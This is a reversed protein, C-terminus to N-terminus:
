KKLKFSKDTFWNQFAGVYAEKSGDVYTVEATKFLVYDKIDTNSSATGIRSVVNGVVPVNVKSAINKQIEKELSKDDPKTLYAFGGASAAVIGTTIVSTKIVTGVLNIIADM